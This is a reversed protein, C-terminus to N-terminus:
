FTVLAQVLAAVDTSSSLVVTLSFPGAASTVAVKITLKKGDFTFTCTASQVQEDKMCEAAVQQEGQNQKSPSMRALTYQRIDWGANPNGGIVALGGRPTTLRRILREGILRRPDTVQVSVRPIDTTCASDTGYFTAM